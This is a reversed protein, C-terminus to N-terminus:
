LNQYAPQNMMPNLLVTAPIPSVYDRGKSALIQTLLSAATKGSPNWPKFSSFKPNGDEDETVVSAQVVLRLQPALAEARTAKGKKKLKPIVEDCIYCETTDGDERNPPHGCRLYAKKPGVNSHMNYEEFIEPSTEGAPTPGIRLCNPGEKLTINTKEKRQEGQQRARRKVADRDYGSM